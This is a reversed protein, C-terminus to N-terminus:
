IHTALFQLSESKLFLSLSASLHLPPPPTPVTTTLRLQAAHSLQIHCSNELQSVSVTCLFAPGPIRLCRLSYLSGQQRFLFSHYFLQACSFFLIFRCLSVCVHTTLSITVRLKVVEETYIRKTNRYDSVQLRKM